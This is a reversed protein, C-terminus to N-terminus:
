SPGAWRNHDSGNKEHWIIFAMFPTLLLINFFSLTLAFIMSWDRIYVNAFFQTDLSTLNHTEYLYTTNLMRVINLTQWSPTEILCLIKQEKCDHWILQKYFHHIQNKRIKLNFHFFRPQKKKIEYSDSLFLRCEFKPFQVPFILEM